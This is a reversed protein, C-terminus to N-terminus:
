LGIPVPQECQQSNGVWDPRSDSAVVQFPHEGCALHQAIFSSVDSVKNPRDKKAWYLREYAGCKCIILGMGTTDIM